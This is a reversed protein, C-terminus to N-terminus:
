GNNTKTLLYKSKKKKSHILYCFNEVKSLKRMLVVQM